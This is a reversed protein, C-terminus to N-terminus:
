AVPRQAQWSQLAEQVPTWLRDPTLESMCEM